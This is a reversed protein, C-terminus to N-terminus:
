PGARSTATSRTRWPKTPNARTKSGDSPQRVRQPQIIAGGTESGEKLFWIAGRFAREAEPREVFRKARITREPWVADFTTAHREVVTRAARSDAVVLLTAVRLAHWGREKALLQPAIRVKRDFTHLLEQVDGIRSKVEILLLTRTAEHWAAIDVSGREGFHNFSWEPQVVWGADTLARLTREVITAHVSDLLRGADGRRWWADLLVRIELVDGVRRVTGVPMADFRGLEIEAIWRQSCGVVAAIDRQRLGRQIRVTRFLRGVQEDQM